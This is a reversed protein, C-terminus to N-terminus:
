KVTTIHQYLKEVDSTVFRMEGVVPVEVKVGDEPMQGKIATYLTDVDVNGSDDIVGLAKIYKNEGLSPVFDAYKSIVISIGAGILVRKLSDDILPMFEADLYSAVGRKIQDVSYTM